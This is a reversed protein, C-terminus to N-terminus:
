YEHSRMVSSHFSYFNIGGGQLSVPQFLKCMVSFSSAPLQPSRSQDSAQRIGCREAAAGTSPLGDALWGIALLSSVVKLEKRRWTWSNSNIVNLVSMKRNPKTNGFWPSFHSAKLFLSQLCYDYHGSTNSSCFSFSFFEQIDLM